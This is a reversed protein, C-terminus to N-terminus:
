QPGCHRTGEEPWSARAAAQGARYHSITQGIVATAKDPEPFLM